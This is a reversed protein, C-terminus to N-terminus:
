SPQPETLSGQIPARDGDEAPRWREAQQRLAEMRSWYAQVAAKGGPSLRVSTRPTKGVFSKDIIVIDADQLKSLHASLNGKSLGTLRQLYLFDAAHCAALASVIALRAPEHILKDLAALDQFPENM